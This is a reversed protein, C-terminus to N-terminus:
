QEFENVYGFPPSTKQKKNTHRKEASTDSTKGDVHSDEDDDDEDDDGEKNEGEIKQAPRHSVNVVEDKQM